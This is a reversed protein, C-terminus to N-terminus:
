QGEELIKREKDLDREQVKEKSFGGEYRAKLKDINTKMVQSSTSGNTYILFNILGLMTEIWRVMSEKNIDLKYFTVKKYWDAMLSILNAIAVSIGLMDGTSFEAITSPDPQGLSGDNIVDKDPFLANVMLATYWLMDGLEELINVKDEKVIAHNLEFIESMLGVIGHDLREFTNSDKTSETKSAQLRYTNFKM